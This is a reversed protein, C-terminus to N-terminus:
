PCTERERGREHWEQREGCRTRGRAVAGVEHREPDHQHEAPERGSRGEEVPRKFPEFAPGLSAAWPYLSCDDVFTQEVCTLAAELLQGRLGSDLSGLWAADMPELLNLAIRNGLQAGAKRFAVFRKEAEPHRSVIAALVDTLQDRSCARVLSAFDPRAGAERLVLTRVPPPCTVARGPLQVFLGRGELQKVSNLFTARVMLQSADDRVGAFLCLREWETQSIEGRLALVALVSRESPTSLALQKAWHQPDGAGMWVTM